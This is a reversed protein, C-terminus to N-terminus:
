RPIANRVPPRSAIIASPKPGWDAAYLNKPISMPSQPSTKAERWCIEGHITLFTRRSPNGDGEYLLYMVSVDAALFRLGAAKM